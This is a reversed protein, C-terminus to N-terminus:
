NQYVKETTECIQKWNFKDKVREMNKQGSKELEEKNKILDIIKNALSYISSNTFWYRSDTVVEQHEPIDSVLVPRGYGMGQLVTIPLGENESPHILLSTNGYLQNLNEDKQWGTFVVSPDNDGIQHLERVYDDTFASGGTIVLKYDRLLEPYQERAYRWAELLYHAGKHKVLRSVMLFYKNPELGFQKLRDTDTRNVTRVGNPNYVVNKDFENLCYSQITKSVAITKHPFKCVAKEGLALMLKAFWNWKKHYRDICHFTGVVKTKPALVRPLWSLLAPGVAHYHIVDFGNFIAHISATFTHIIADLHKTKVTPTYVIKIGRYNTIKEPAYWKRAYVTVDHGNQILELALEEVHREVGGFAAPLGKQGIFAIRM